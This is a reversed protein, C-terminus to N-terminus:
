PLSLIQYFRQPDPGIQDFTTMLTNTATIPGNLNNWLTQDLNTKYLMQYSDGPTASWTLVISGGAPTASIFYAPASTPNLSLSFITGLGNTGGSTTTGYFIGRADQILTCMPFAGNTGNFTAVTSLTPM